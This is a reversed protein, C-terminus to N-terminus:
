AVHREDHSFFNLIAAFLRAWRGAMGPEQCMRETHKSFTERWSTPRGYILRGLSQNLACSMLLAAIAVPALLRWLGGRESQVALAYLALMGLVLLSLVGAFAVAASM